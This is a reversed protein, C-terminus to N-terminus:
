LQRGSEDEKFATYIIAQTGLASAWIYLLLQEKASRFPRSGRGSTLGFDPAEVSFRM